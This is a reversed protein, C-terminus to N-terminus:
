GGEDKRSRLSSSTGAAAQQLEVELARIENLGPETLLDEAKHSCLSDLPPRVPGAGVGWADCLLKTAAVAGYRETIAQIRVLSGFARTSSAIDGRQWAAVVERATHPILNAEGCAFGAGGLALNTLTHHPGASYVEVDPRIANIVNALYTVDNRHANGGGQIAVINEYEYTMRGILDPSVTYSHAPTYFSLVVQLDTNELVNRYFTEMQQDTPKTNHAPLPPYLGVCTAGARKVLDVFGLHEDASRPCSGLVIVETRGALYETAVRVTESIEHRRLGSFEGSGEGVLIVGLGAAAFRDLNACMRVLDLNGGADFSTFAIVRASAPAASSQKM